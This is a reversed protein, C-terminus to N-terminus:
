SDFTTYVSISAWHFFVYFVYESPESVHDLLRAATGSPRDGAIEVPVLMVICRDPHPM